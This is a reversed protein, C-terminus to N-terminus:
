WADKLEIAITREQESQAIPRMSAQRGANIVDRLGCAIFTSRDEDTADASSLREKANDCFAALNAAKGAEASARAGYLHVGSVLIVASCASGILAKFM